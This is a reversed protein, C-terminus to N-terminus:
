DHTVFYDLLEDVYTNPQNSQDISAIYAANKVDQEQEKAGRQQNQQQQQQLNSSKPQSM